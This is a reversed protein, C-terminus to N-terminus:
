AGPLPTWASIAVLADGADLAYVRVRSPGALTPGEVEAARDIGGLVVSIDAGTWGWVPTGDATQVVLEYTAAGAPATWAFTPRAPDTGGVTVDLAAIGPLQQLKDPPATTTPAETAPTTAPVTTSPATAATTIVSTLTTDTTAVTTDVTSSGPTTDVTAPSTAAVSASTSPVTSTSISKTADSGCAACLIATAAIATMLTTRHQM